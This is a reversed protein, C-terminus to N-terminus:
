GREKRTSRWHQYSEFFSDVQAGVDRTFVFFWATFYTALFIITSGFTGLYEALLRNYLLTGLVGGAGEHYIQVFSENRIDPMAALGCASIICVLMAAIRSIALRKVRRLLIWSTWVLFLPILWSTVGILTFSYYSVVSGFLGVMNRDTLTTSYESSQEPRYDIFSFLLLVAVVFCLTAWGWKGRSRPAQFTPINKPNSSEKKAM